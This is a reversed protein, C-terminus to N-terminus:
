MGDRELFVSNFLFLFFAACFGFRFFVMDLADVGANATWTSLSHTFPRESVFYPRYPRGIFGVTKKDAERSVARPVLTNEALNVLSLTKLFAGELLDRRVYIGNLSDM